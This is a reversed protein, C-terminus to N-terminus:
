EEELNGMTEVSNKLGGYIERVEFFDGVLDEMVFDVKLDMGKIWSEDCWIGLFDIEWRLKLGRVLM